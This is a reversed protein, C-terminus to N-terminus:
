TSMPRSVFPRQALWPGTRAPSGLVRRPMRSRVSCAPASRTSHGHKMAHCVACQHGCVQCRVRGAGREGAARQSDSQQEGGREDRHHRRALDHQGEQAAVLDPGVPQAEAIGVDPVLVIELVAVRDRKADTGVVGPREVVTVRDAGVGPPQAEATMRDIRLGVDEGEAVAEREAVQQGVVLGIGGRQLHDEVVPPGAPQDGVAAVRAAEGEVARVHAVAVIEPRELRIEHDVANERVVVALEGLVGPGLQVGVAVRQADALYAV